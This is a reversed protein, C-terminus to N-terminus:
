IQVIPMEAPAPTSLFENGDEGVVIIEECQFVGHETELKPELHLVMGAEIRESSQGSISPPETLGVGGGHGVRGAGAVSWSQPLGASGWLEQFLAFAEAGTWGARIGRCLDLTVQRVAAYAEREAVSPDGVRALRNRDAPYGGYSCRFDTWIYDDKALQKHSSPRHFQFDTTGFLVSFPVIRDAGNKVFEIQLADTMEIESTGVRVDRLVDDFARDVISFTRRMAELEHESKVLRVNWLIPGAEVLGASASLKQVLSLSGRGYLEHGYDVAVSRAEASVSRVAEQVAVVAEELFGGYIRVESKDDGSALSKEDARSAVVVSSSRGVVLFVPRAHYTWAMTRFSSFYEFNEQATIVIADTGARDLEVQLREIRHQFETASPLPMRPYPPTTHHADNM